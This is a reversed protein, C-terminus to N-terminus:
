NAIEKQFQEIWTAKNSNIYDLDFVKLAKFADEGSALYKAKEESMTAKSNCPAESLVDAVKNQVNESILYQIFLQALKPNQCGKVVNATAAASFSGEKPTVWKIDLGSKRLLPVNMDMFVAVAIEGTTFGTQVSSGSMYFDAIKSKEKKLLEMAPTVNEQSGGLDEALSVLLYPGATSAMDPLSILGDYNGNFLDMYSTPASVADANYLIGYRVM